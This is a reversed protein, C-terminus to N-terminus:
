RARCDVDFSAFDQIYAHALSIARGVNGNGRATETGKRMWAGYSTRGDSTYAPRVSWYYTKCPELPIDLKFQTGRVRQVRYVPQRTDYIEVDWSVAAEDYQIKTKDTLEVTWRLTPSVLRTEGHWPNKKDPKIADGYVPEMSHGVTIRAYLEDILERALYHRAFQRYERWLAYNNGTWNKLQDRDSYSATTRFLTTGDAKNQLRATAVTSIIAEDKQINLTVEDLNIYLIADTDPPIPTTVAFLKPDVGKIDNLGWFVDTALAINSLPQEVESALDETMRDRLDQTRREMAGTLGGVIMGLERLIPIPINIPVQGVEVPVQGIEAGKAMGGSLGRTEQGYTGTIAEGSEGAIPLIVIRSISDRLESSMHAAPQATDALTSSAFLLM